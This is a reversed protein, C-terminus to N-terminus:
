DSSKHTHVLFAYLSCSWWSQSLSSLLTRQISSFQIENVCLTFFDELGIQIVETRVVGICAYNTTTLKVNNGVDVKLSIWIDIHIGAPRNDLVVLM